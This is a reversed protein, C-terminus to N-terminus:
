EIIPDTDRDTLWDFMDRIGEEYKMGRYHSGREQGDRAWDLVKQIEEDTRVIEFTASM